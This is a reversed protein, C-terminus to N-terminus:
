KKKKFFILDLSFRGPGILLMVLSFALYIAALEYSGEKGVFPDGKVVAHVYVAVAMTCMLGFSALPVLLGIIWALGGGFEAVAALLQLFAPFTDGAWAMPNQIKPFGHLMMGTGLLVRLILLALSTRTDQRQKDM